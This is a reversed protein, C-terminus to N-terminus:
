ESFNEGQIQRKGNPTFTFRLSEIVQRTRGVYPVIKECPKGVFNRVPDCPDYSLNVSDNKLFIVTVQSVKGAESLRPM